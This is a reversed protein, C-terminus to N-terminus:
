ADIIKRLRVARLIQSILSLPECAGIILFGFILGFIELGKFKCRYASTDFTGEKNVCLEQSLQVIFIQFVILLNALVSVILLKSSRIKLPQIDGRKFLYFMTFGLFTISIVVVTCLIVINTTISFLTGETM